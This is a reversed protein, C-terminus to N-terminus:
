HKKTSYNITHNNNSQYQNKDFQAFKTQNEQRIEEILELTNFNEDQENVLDYEDDSTHPSDKQLDEEQFMQKIKKRAQLVGFYIVVSFNKIVSFLILIVIGWGYDKLDDPGLKSKYILLFMGVCLMIVFEDLVTTTQQSEEKFPRVIILYLIMALNCVMVALCQFFPLDYLYVIIGCICLRQYIFLPYYYLQLISHSRCEDTLMGFKKKWELNKVHRRNHYIITMTLFPLLLSIAGFVFAILTAVSQDYNKFKPFQTNIIVQLILEIYMEVFTRLPGNFFFQSVLQEWLRIKKCLKNLLLIIPLFVLLGVCWLTLKQGFAFLLKSIKTNDQFKQQLKDNDSREVINDQNVIMDAVNPIYQNFEDIDGSAVMLYKSFLMVNDPFDINMYLLFNFVQLAHVLGWLYQMSSNLVFKLAINVSFVSIFTYKLSQGGGEATNAESESLYAFLAPRTSFYSDKVLPNGAIDTISEYNLFYIKMDETGDLSTQINQLIISFKNIYRNPILPNKIDQIIRYDFTYSTRKGTIEIILNVKSLDTENQIMISESFEIYIQNKATVTTVAFTPPITERCSKNAELCEFGYEIKCDGNCGDGSAVNGDDCQKNILIGDGCVDECEFEENTFLGYLENCYTCTHLKSSLLAGPYCQICQNSQLGTCRKCRSNCRQCTGLQIGNIKTEFWQFFQGDICKPIKCETGTLLYGKQDIVGIENEAYIVSCNTCQSASPGFCLTCSPNCPKCSFDTKDGWYSDPCQEYCGNNLKYFGPNCTPCQTQSDPGNCSKCQTPCQMCLWDIPNSYTGEVCQQKIVLVIEIPTEWYADDVGVLELTYTGVDIDTTFGGITGNTFNRVFYPVTFMSKERWYMTYPENEPNRFILSQDYHFFFWNGAIGQINELIKIKILPWNQMIELNFTVFQPTSIQDDFQVKITHNGGQSNSFPVVTINKTVSNWLIWSGQTTPNYLTNNVYLSCINPQGLPDSSSGSLDFTIQDPLRIYNNPYTQLITIIPKAVVEMEIVYDYPTGDYKDSISCTFTYLGAYNNSLSYQFKDGCVWNLPLFEQQYKSLCELCDEKRPTIGAFTINGTVPNNSYTIWTDSLADTSHTCTIITADGEADTFNQYWFTYDFSDTIYISFLTTPLQVNPQPANNVVMQITILYFNPTDPNFEDTITVNIKRVLSLQPPDIFSFRIGQDNSYIVKFYSISSNINVNNSNLVYADFIALDGENDSQYNITWTFNHHSILSISTPFDEFAVPPINKVVEITFDTYNTNTTSSTVKATYRLKYTGMFSNSWPSVKLIQNTADFTIFAPLATAPSILMSYTLAEGSCHTFKPLIYSHNFTGVSFGGEASSVPLGLRDSVLLPKSPNSFKSCGDITARINGVQSTSPYIIVKNMNSYWRNFLDLSVSSETWTGSYTTWFSSSAGLLGPYIKNSYLDGNSTSPSCTYVWALTPDKIAFLIAYQSRGPTASSSFVWFQSNRLYLSTIYMTTGSSFYNYLSKYALYPSSTTITFFVVYTTASVTYACALISNTSSYELSVHNITYSPSEYIDINNLINGTTPDIINVSIEFGAYNSPSVTYSLYTISATAIRGSSVFEIGATQYKSLSSPYQYQRVSSDYLYKKWKTAGTTIDAQQLGWWSQPSQYVVFTQYINNTATDFILNRGYIDSSTDYTRFFILNYSNDLRILFMQYYSTKTFQTLYHQGSLYQDGNSIDVSYSGLQFLKTMTYVQKGAQFKGYKTHRTLMVKDFTSSRTFVQHTAAMIDDQYGYLCHYTGADSTVWEISLHFNMTLGQTYQQIFGSYYGANNNLLDYSAGCMIYNTGTSDMDSKTYFVAYTSSGYFVAPIVTTPCDQSAFGYNVSPYIEVTFTQETIFFINSLVWFKLRVVYTGIDADLPTMKLTSLGTSNTMSMFTPIGTFKDVSWDFGIESNFCDSPWNFSYSKSTIPLTIIQDVLPDLFQPKYNGCSLAPIEKIALQSGNKMELYIGIPSYYRVEGQDYTYTLQTYIASSATKSSSGASGSSLVWNLCSYPSGM